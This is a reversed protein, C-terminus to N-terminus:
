PVFITGSCKKNQIFSTLSMKETANIIGVKLSTKLIEKIMNVKVIMGGAIVKAKILRDIEKTNIKQILEDNENLLGSTGTLFAMTSNPLSSAVAAAAVDANVNYKQNKGAGIPSIVVIGYKGLDQLLPTNVSDVKGVQGLKPSMVSCTLLNGDIGSIGIAMGSREVIDSVIKPNVQQSLVDEIMPLHKTETIRQGDHFKPVVKHDQYAQNIYPGAGHILYIKHGQNHLSILEDIWSKNKNKDLFAGGVKIVINM